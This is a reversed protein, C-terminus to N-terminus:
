AEWPNGHTGMPEWPNGGVFWWTTGQFQGFAPSRGPPPLAAEPIGFILNAPYM